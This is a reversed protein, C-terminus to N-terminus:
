NESVMDSKRESQKANIRVAGCRRCDPRSCLLALPDERIWAQVVELLDSLPTRQILARGVQALCTIEELRPAIAQFGESCGPFNSCEVTGGPTLAWRTFQKRGARREGLHIATNCRHDVGLLLVDGEHEALWGIPALPMALTQSLLAEEVNLGTFSLIPHNSRGAGPFKRLNETLVGVSKDAPVDPSWIRALANQDTGSGYELGNDPPGVEPTVMTGYTFAPAMISGCAATLAGLLSQAGGEVQGFASLSAHVLVPREQEVGVERLGRM